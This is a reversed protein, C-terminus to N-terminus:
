LIDRVSRNRKRRAAMQKYEATLPPWGSLLATIIKMIPKTIDTM